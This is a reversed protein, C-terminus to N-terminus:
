QLFHAVGGVVIMLKVKLPHKVLLTTEHTGEVNTMSHPHAGYQAIITYIIM